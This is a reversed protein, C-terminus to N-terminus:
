YRGQVTAAVQARRTVQLKELINHVHNKVTPLEICLRQAIEKNSLGDAVLAAVERERATLAEDAAPLRAAALSAVRRLLRAAVRPSCVTEGRAVSELTAVLDALSGDRTVYGAIGAEACEMIDDERDAVALAVVRAGLRARALARVCAVGDTSAVDVLVIAPPRARIRPLATAADTALGVVDVDPRRELATRLGDGYLRTPTIIFVGTM